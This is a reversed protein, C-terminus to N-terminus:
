NKLFQVEVEPRVAEVVEPTGQIEQM